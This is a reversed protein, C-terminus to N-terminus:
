IKFKEILTRLEVAVSALSEGSNAIEDIAMAQKDMTASVQQTGAANEESIASLNQILEIINDRNKAMLDSSENLKDAVSKVLETAAAIENFKFETSKVSQTQKNIIEKSENMANVALESKSKLEDIVTKIDGTFKNSDEALKRIEDAVVAFGKGAEGARAAEIAANLALLNTQDAISQIMSSANEIKEASENNSLILERINATSENSKQTYHILEKLITFGDEKESDIKQAARNLEQLYDNDVDLLKGLQEINRATNETDKAQDSAGKAIEEITKAIEDATAATQQSTLTLEKSSDTLQEATHFISRIIEAINFIFLNLSSALAGLENNAKIDISQTLDGGSSALQHINNEVMKINKIVKAILIYLVIMSIILSAILSIISIITLRVVQNNLDMVTTATRNELTEFFTNIPRMIEAKFTMYQKDHMIRIAADRPTEGAKMVAKEATGIKNDVLNMAIVETNVLGDSNANSEALYALEEETFHLDKMIDLLSRKLESDPYPSKGDAAVLDWYILHYNEPRPLNGNRIDLIAFYERYYEQAQVPDDQKSVVYLRALRTLDDSSQRLEDAKLYSNYRIEQQYSLEDQTNKLLSILAINLVLLAIITGISILFTKKISM